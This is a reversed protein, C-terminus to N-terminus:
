TKNEQRCCNLQCHRILDLWYDSKHTAVLYFLIVSYVLRILQSVDEDVSRCHAAAIVNQNDRWTDSSMKATKLEQWTVVLHLVECVEDSWNNRHKQTLAKNVPEKLASDRDWLATGVSPPTILSNHIESPTGRLLKATSEGYKWSPISSFSWFSWNTYVTSGSPNWDLFGRMYSVCTVGVSVKFYPSSLQFTINFVHVPM